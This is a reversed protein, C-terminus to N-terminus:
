HGHHDTGSSVEYFKDVAEYEKRYSLINGVMEFVDIQKLKFTYKVDKNHRLKDLFKIAIFSELGM